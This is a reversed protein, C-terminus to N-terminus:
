VAQHRRPFRAVNWFLRSARHIIFPASVNFTGFFFLIHRRYFSCFLSSCPHMRSIVTPHYGLVLCMFLAKAHPIVGMPMIQRAHISPQRHASAGCLGSLHGTFSFASFVCFWLYIPPLCHLPPFMPLLFTFLRSKRLCSLTTPLLPARHPVGCDCTTADWSFSQTNSFPYRAPKKTSSSAHQGLARRSRSGLITRRGDSTGIHAPQTPHAVCM